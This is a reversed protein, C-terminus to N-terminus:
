LPMADGNDKDCVTDFSHSYALDVTTNRGPLDISADGGIQRSLYDRETRLIIM